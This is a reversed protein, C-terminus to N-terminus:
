GRGASYGRLRLANTVVFVSSFAMAAAGLMPSLTIGFVPYLAGAAVPILAVNYAFAWFLNQRINRMVARSIRFASAALSVDGGMLVVDATQVAVDAGTAMALGVDAEALAPADNIGDGVYAVPAKNRLGAVINAKDEPLVEACIDDIGLRRGITQATEASDGTIMTIKIGRNRLQDATSMATARLPDSVGMLGYMQGEVAVFFVSQGEIALSQARAVYRTVDVDRETMLRETGVLVFRGDVIGQVGMGSLAEFDSALPPRVGQEMAARLVASAVPHESLAELGSVLRLAERRNEAYVTSLEPRGETLTGTKDFAFSRVEALRQLADGKRFLIGLEAARGTGVMISTPTALGMACPCAIILVSVASVLAQAVTGGLALWIAATALSIVIVVPVFIATVRDVLAQIPLKAGQAQEVLRVIRALVTDGGTSTVEITLAGSGNITGAIVPDGLTREVPVPEGTVMSEDVYSRGSLVIGDVPIQGGPRVLVTDRVAIDAIAIEVTDEGRQVLAVKPALALLADIAAGTRGKARAELYKGLLILTVIVMAAEFYVNASGEPLLGPAITVLLSFLYAAGAGMSVLSNMDPAGRILAPLGHLFFDRGPWALLVTALVLQLVHYTTVSISAAIWHHFPMYVHGAMETLFVPLTLVIAVILRDLFAQAEVAKREAVTQSGSGSSPKAPYGARELGALIPAPDHAFTQVQATETALNVTASLTGVQRMLIKEVRTVCSACTMGAVSLTYNRPTAGYGGRRLAEAVAVPVGPGDFTVQATENALNVAVDTVGEVKSALKEVRAVCSACTMGEIDLTVSQPM